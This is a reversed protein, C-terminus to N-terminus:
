QLIKQANEPDELHRWEARYGDILLVDIMQGISVSHGHQVLYAAGKLKKAANGHSTLIVNALFGAGNQQLYNYAEMKKMKQVM